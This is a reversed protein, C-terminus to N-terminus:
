EESGEEPEEPNLFDDMQQKMDADYDHNQIDAVAAQIKPNYTEIATQPTSTGNKIDNFMDSVATKLDGFGNIPNIKVLGNNFLNMCIEVTKADDAWSELEAEMLDDWEEETEVVDTILDYILAAEEPNEIGNLMFRPAVEKGYCSWDTASPGKPFPVFGFEDQMENLYAYSIWFEELCMMVKGDRFNKIQAQWDGLWGGEHPVNQSFDQLEELAEIVKKDNLDVNVGSDTKEVVDVGNSYLYCWELNERENFGWIDMTGDNDLDQNGALCIERFKEWTWEGKEYLDYLDPLGYKKFLTKNWFIGYRVEPDKMLFSYNKGKYNGAEIYDPRWKYDNFDFVGLDSVPYAIGGEILAPLLRYSMVYGIDCIPEGSLVSTIYAATYDDPISVFEIKCNYNEEVFKIRDAFAQDFASNEAVPTMDYYSGIKLVRGNFNYEPEQKKEPEDTSELKDALEQKDTPEQKKEPEKVENTPQPTASAPEKEGGKCGVLAFVLMVAMFLVRFKKKQNRM